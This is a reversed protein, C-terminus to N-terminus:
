VLFSGLSLGAFVAQDINLIDRLEILLDASVKSFRLRKEIADSRGHYPMDGTRSTIDTSALTNLVQNCIELIL